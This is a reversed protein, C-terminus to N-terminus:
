AISEGFDKFIRNENFKSCNEDSSIWLLSLIIKWRNWYILYWNRLGLLVGSAWLKVFLGNELSFCRFFDLFLNWVCIRCVLSRTSRKTNNVVLNEKNKQTKEEEWWLIRKQKPKPVIKTLIEILNLGEPDYFRAAGELVLMGGFMRFERM